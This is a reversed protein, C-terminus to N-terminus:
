NTEVKKPLTGPVIVPLPQFYKEREIDFSNNSKTNISLDPTAESNGEACAKTLEKTQEPSIEVLNDGKRCKGFKNFAELLLLTDSESKFCVTLDASVKGGDLILCGKAGKLPSIIKTMQSYNVTHILTEANKEKFLHLSYVNAMYFGKVRKRFDKLNEIFEAEFMLIQNCQVIKFPSGNVIIPVESSKALDTIGGLGDIGEDIKDAQKINLNLKLNKSTLSKSNTLIEISSIKFNILFICFLFM